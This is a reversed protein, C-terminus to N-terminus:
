LDGSAVHVHPVWSTGPNAHELAHLEVLDDMSANQKHATTTISVHHMTLLHAAMAARAWQGDPNLRIEEMRIVKRQQVVGGLVRTVVQEAEEATPVLLTVPDDADVFIDYTDGAQDVLRVQWPKPGALDLDYRKALVKYAAGSGAQVYMTPEIMGWTSRQQIM